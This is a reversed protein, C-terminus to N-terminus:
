IIKEQILITKNEYEPSSTHIATIDAKRLPEM